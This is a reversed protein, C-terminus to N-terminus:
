VLLFLPHLPCFIYELGYTIIFVERKSVEKLESLFWIRHKRENMELSLLVPRGSYIVYSQRKYM